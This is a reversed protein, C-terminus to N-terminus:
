IEHPAVPTALFRALWAVAGRYLGGKWIGAIAEDRSTKAKSFAKEVATDSERLIAEALHRTDVFSEGRGRAVTAARDLVRSVPSSGTLEEISREPISIQTRPEATLDARIPTTSLLFIEGSEIPVEGIVPKNRVFSGNTSKLDKLFIKGGSCRIEAHFSSIGDGESLVFQNELGRKEDSRRRGVRVVTDRGAPVTELHRAGEMPGLWVELGLVSDSARSLSEPM